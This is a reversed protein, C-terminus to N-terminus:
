NNKSNRLRLVTVLGLLGTGFLLLSGAEPVATFINSADAKLLLDTAPNFTNFDGFPAGAGGCFFCVTSSTGAPFFLQTTFDLDHLIDTQFFTHDYNIPAIVIQTTSSGQGTGAGPGATIFSFISDGSAVTGSLVQTGDDFGTGAATNANVNQDLYINMTGGTLSFTAIQVGGIVGFGTVTENITAVITVEYNTAPTAGNLNAPNITAGGPATASVLNAQYLFSLQQGVVLPDGPKVATGTQDGGILPNDAAYIPLGSGAENWDFARTLIVGDPGYNVNVDIQDASAVGFSLLVGAVAAILSKRLGSFNKIWM